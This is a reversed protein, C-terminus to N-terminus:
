RSRSTSGHSSSTISLFTFIAFTGQTFTDRKYLFQLGSLATKRLLHLFYVLVCKSGAVVVYQTKVGCGKIM